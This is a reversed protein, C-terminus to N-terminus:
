NRPRVGLKSMVRETIDYRQRVDDAVYLVVLDGNNVMRNIVYTLGLKKSVENIANTVKTRIPEVLAEQRSLLEQQYEMQFQQLNRQMQALEQQRATRAEEQLVAATEEFRERARVFNAEMEAYERRKRSTFGELADTVTTLEPMQFLILNADVVGIRLEQAQSQAPNAVFLGAVILLAITFYRM